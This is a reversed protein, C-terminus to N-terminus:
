NFRDFLPRKKHERIPASISLVVRLAPAHGVLRPWGGSIAGPRTSLRDCLFECLGKCPSHNLIDKSALASGCKPMDLPPPSCEQRGVKSDGGFKNKLAQPRPM